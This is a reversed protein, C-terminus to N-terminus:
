SPNLRGHWENNICWMWQMHAVIMFVRKWTGVNKKKFSDVCFENNQIDHFYIFSHQMCVYVCLAFWFIYIYIYIHIRAQTTASKCRKVYVCVCMCVYVCVFVYVCVCMRVHIHTCMCVYVCVYIMCLFCLKMLGAGWARKAAYVNIVGEKNRYM